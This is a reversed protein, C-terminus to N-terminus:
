PKIAELLYSESQFSKLCNMEEVVAGPNMLVAHTKCWEHAKCSSGSIPKHLDHQQVAQQM